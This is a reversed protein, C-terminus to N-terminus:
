GPLDGISPERLEQDKGDTGTQLLTQGVVTENGCDCICKWRHMGDRKGAYETVTLRGPKVRSVCGCDTVTGRPLRRTNLRIEGGCDCRCTWVIYGNRREQTPAEVTLKGVRYGIGICDRPQEAKREQRIRDAM